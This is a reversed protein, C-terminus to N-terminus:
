APIGRNVCSVRLEHNVSRSRARDVLAKSQARVRGPWKEVSRIETRSCDVDEVAVKLGDGNGAAEAIGIKGRAERREINMSDSALEIDGIRQLVASLVVIHWTRSIAYDINEIQM